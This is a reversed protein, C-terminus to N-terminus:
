LSWFFMSQFGWHEEMLTSTVLHLLSCLYWLASEERSKMVYYLQECSYWSNLAQVRVTVTQCFSQVKYWFAGLWMKLLMKKKIESFFTKLCLDYKKFGSGTGLCEGHLCIVGCGVRLFSAGGIAQETGQKTQRLTSLDSGAGSFFCLWLSAISLASDQLWAAPPDLLVPSFCCPHSVYWLISSSVWWVYTISLM